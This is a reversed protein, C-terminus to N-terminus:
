AVSDSFDYYGDWTADLKQQAETLPTASWAGSTHSALGLRELKELADTVDFDLRCKWQTEFWKEISDDLQTSSLPSASTLLFYYGLLAEKLEEEEAGSILQFIVGSNNDLNKFYLQDTLAKLFRIKRNKFKSVQKLVYGAAAAIGAGAAILQKSDINPQESKMGLWFLILGVILLIVSLLKTVLMAIGGIAAPIGIILKDVARMKVQVNPFLIELDAKPVNRFLKMVTSGPVFELRKRGQAEFYTAEKFRVYIAVREYLAFTVTEKKLGFLKPVEESGQREGRVFFVIDEFDDFNVDLRIKFLSSESMARKLDETGLPHYNAKELVHSLGSFLRTQSTRKEEESLSTISRTDTDPDFPAYATKLNELERHFEFHFISSLLQSVSHFAAHDGEALRGDRLCMQAVERAPFPIFTERPQPDPSM